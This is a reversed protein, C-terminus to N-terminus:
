RTQQVERMPRVGLYDVHATAEYGGRTSATVKVDTPRYSGGRAVRAAASQFPAMPNRDRAAPKAYFRPDYGDRCWEWVNGHMDYLGFENAPFSAVPVRRDRNIQAQSPQLQDGTHWRTTTGARCAYEWQAETPLKLGWQQLADASERWSASAVPMTESGTKRAKTLRFWQAVTMEYKSILFRDLKVDHVPREWQSGSDSGMRFQGEPVLVFVLGTEPKIIPKGGSWAPKSGSATLWYLPHGSDPDPGLHEMGDQPGIPSPDPVPDPVPEGLALVDALARRKVRLDKLEDFASGPPLRRLRSSVTRMRATVDTARRRWEPSPRAQPDDRRLANWERLLAEAALTLERLAVLGLRPRVTTKADVAQGPGIAKGTGDEFGIVLEPVETAIGAESLRALAETLSQTADGLDPFTASRQLEVVATGPQAGSRASAVIMHDRAEPPLNASLGLAGLVSRADKVTLGVLGDLPIPAPVPPEGDQQEVMVYVVRAGDPVRGGTAPSVARVVTSDDWNGPLGPGFGLDSLRASADRVPLNSINPMEKSRNVVLRVTSGPRLSVNAAPETRLVCDRPMASDFGGVEVGVLEASRLQERAHELSAGEAIAPVSALQNVIMVVESGRRVRSGATPYTALVVGTEHNEDFGAVIQEAAGLGSETLRTAATSQTVGVLEPVESCRNIALVTPTGPAARHGAAPYSALVVDAPQDPRYGDITEGLELNAAALSSSADAVSSGVLDAPVQVMPSADPVTTSAANDVIRQLNLPLLFFLALFLGAAVAVRQVPASTLTVFVWAFPKFGWRLYSSNKVAKQLNKRARDREELYEKISRRQWEKLRELKGLYKGTKESCNKEIEPSYPFPLHNVLTLYPHILHPNVENQAADAFEEFGVEILEDGVEPKLVEGFPGRPELKVPLIARHVLRADIRAQKDLLKKAAAALEGKVYNSQQAEKSVVVLVRDCDELGELLKVQWDQGVGISHPAFWHKRKARKIGPLIEDRVFRDNESSYSVFVKERSGFM